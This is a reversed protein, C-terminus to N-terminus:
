TFLSNAFIFSFATFSASLWDAERICDLLEFERDVMPKEGFFGLLYAM